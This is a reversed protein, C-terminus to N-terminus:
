IATSSSNSVGAMAPMRVQQHRHGLGDVACGGLGGGDDEPGQV